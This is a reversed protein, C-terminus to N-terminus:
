DAKRSVAMSAMAQATASADDSTTLTFVLESDDDERGWAYAITRNPGANPGLVPDDLKRAILPGPASDVLAGFGRQVAEPEARQAFVACTTDERLSVVYNRGSATIIWATGPKGGLFFAAQEGRLVSAGQGTMEKRLDDQAYFYQMCTTAFLMNFDDPAPAAASVSFPALLALGTFRFSGM